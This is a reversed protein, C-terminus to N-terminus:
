HNFCRFFRLPRSLFCCIMGPALIDSASFEMYPAGGTYQSAEVDSDLLGSTGGVGVTCIRSLTALISAITEANRASCLRNNVNDSLNISSERDRERERDRQRERDRERRQEKFITSGVEVLVFSTNEM